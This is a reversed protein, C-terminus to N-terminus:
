GDVADIAFKASAFSATHARSERAAAHFRAVVGVGRQAAGSRAAGRRKESRRANRAM